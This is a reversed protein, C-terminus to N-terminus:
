ATRHKAFGAASRPECASRLAAGPKARTAADPLRVNLPYLIRDHKSPERQGASISHAFAPPWGCPPHVHFCRCANKTMRDVRHDDRKREREPRKRQDCVQDIVKATVVVDPLVDGE